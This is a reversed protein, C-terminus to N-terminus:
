PKKTPSPGRLGSLEFSGKTEIDGTTLKISGIDTAIDRLIVDGHARIAGLNVNIAESLEPKALYPELKGLATQIEALEKETYGKLCAALASAAGADAPDSELKEVAEQGSRDFLAKIGTWADKGAAKVFETGAATAGAIVGTVVLSVPDM